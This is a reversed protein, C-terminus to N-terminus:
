IKKLITIWSNFSGPISGSIAIENTEKNISIIKLGTVTKNKNGYHGPMKKGRVVKGPTQAGISGPARVRDSQGGSVPQRQFGWRKIVGAFGRGKSVGTVDVIDGVSFVNDVSIDTGIEINQDTVAKFEKFHNPKIELKIKSLKDLTAKDLKKKTGYAIQVSQYKDKDQTKIQTVKVPLAQCRTVSIRNGNELFVSTMHGKKVIFGSIM